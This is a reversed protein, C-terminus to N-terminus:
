APKQQTVKEAPKQEAQTAQQPQTEQEKKEPDM